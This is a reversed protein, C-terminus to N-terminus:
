CNALRRVERKVLDLEARMLEIEARLDGDLADGAVVPMQALRVAGPHPAEDNKGDDTLLLFTQVGDALLDAPLRVSIHFAGEDAPSVDATAVMMGNQVLMVRGPASPQHLLGQWIGGRLGASTFTNAM